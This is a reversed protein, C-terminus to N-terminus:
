FRLVGFGYLPILIGVLLSLFACVASIIAASNGSGRELCSEAPNKPNYYASTVQGVRYKGVIRQCVSRISCSQLGTLKVTNGKYTAGRVKYEYEVTPVFTGQEQRIDYDSRIEATLITATTKVWNASDAIQLSKRAFQVAAAIGMMGIFVSVIAPNGEM